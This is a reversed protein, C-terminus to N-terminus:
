EACGAGAFGKCVYALDDSTIVNPSGLPKYYYMLADPVHEVHRSNGALQHGMEHKMATYLEWSAALSSVEIRADATRIDKACAVVFYAGASSPEDSCNGDVRFIPIEGDAGVTVSRGLAASWDAAAARAPEYLESSPDVQFRMSDPKAPAPALPQAEAAPSAEPAASSCALALAALAALRFM